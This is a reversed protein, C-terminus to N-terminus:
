FILFDLSIINYIVPTLILFVLLILRSFVLKTDWVPDLYSFAICVMTLHLGVLYLAPITLCGIILLIGGILEIYSSLYVSLKTISNPVHKSRNGNAIEAVVNELKIKFIKDYAQFFLLFGLIVRIIAYLFVFKNTDLFVIFDEM